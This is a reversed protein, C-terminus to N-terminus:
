PDVKANICIVMKWWNIQEIPKQIYYYDTRSLGKYEANVLMNKENWMPFCLRFARM